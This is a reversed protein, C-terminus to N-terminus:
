TDASRCLEETVIKSRRSQKFTTHCEVDINTNYVTIDTNNEQM